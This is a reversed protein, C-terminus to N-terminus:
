GTAKEGHNALTRGASAAEDIRDKSEGEYEM